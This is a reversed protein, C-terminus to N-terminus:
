DIVSWIRGRLIEYIFFIRLGFFEESVKQWSFSWRCICLYDLPCGLVDFLSSITNSTRPLRSKLQVPRDSKRRSQIYVFTWNVRCDSLFKKCFCRYYWIFKESWSTSWRRSASSFSGDYWWACILSPILTPPFWASNTCFSLVYLNLSVYHCLSLPLFYKWNYTFM